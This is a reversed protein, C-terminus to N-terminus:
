RTEVREGKEPTLLELRDALNSFPLQGLTSSKVLRTEVREKGMRLCHALLELRDALNSFPLQGLKTLPADLHEPLVEGLQGLQFAQGPEGHGSVAGHAGRWECTVLM